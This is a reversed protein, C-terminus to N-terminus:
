RFVMFVVRFVKGSLGKLNLLYVGNSLFNTNIIIRENEQVFNKQFVDFNRHVADFIRIEQIKEPLNQIILYHSSPNPYIEVDNKANSSIGLQGQYILVDDIYWGDDTGIDGSEISFQLYLEDPNLNQIQAVDIEFFENVWDNFDLIKDNWIHPYSNINYKAITISNGKDDILKVFGTDTRHIIAAHWFSINISKSDTIKFPFLQLSITKRNPYNGFPSDTISSPTSYFFNTVYDWGNERLFKQQRTIDFTFFIPTESINSIPGVYKILENSFVSENGSNDIVKARFKYFGIEPVNYAIEVIKNTDTNSFQFEGLKITDDYIAISRFNVLPTTSDKRFAPTLIKLTAQYQENLEVSLITPPLPNRAGGPFGIAQREISTDEQCFTRISYIYSTHPILGTDLFKSTSYKLKAITQGNRQLIYFTQNTDIPKGFVKSKPEEWLLLLKNQEEAIIKARFNEPPKPTNVSIYATYVDSDYINRVANRMDVWSPYIKGNYFACGSYDGAFSNETFPNLRLDSAVESVKADIWTEGGNSSYSVYCEVLLNKPDNRSDLYMIAIDGNTPDFAIWHWFQDNTTDSHVIIPPSWTQGGDTSRSFYVNPISDASWCLYLYGSRPGSTYDCVLSPYAEARVSSKVTHRYGQNAIYKTKGFRNYKIIHKPNSFTNGGDTSKAFGIASETGDNWVVYVEGNPGVASLPFSQGFTTDESTNLKAPSIPLPVSWTDGRDSSYSIVIQTSSDRPIVRKWPVYLRGRYPSNPANDITIYYKDEFLSDLTQQGRHIIIPIHATWTNGNDSTRALFVGNEGYLLGTDSLVGFGGYVVYGIGDYSFAVSPDNSSRWGPYPRKLNKNKWNRGGNTSYYVWTSSTDRYDVASAILVNPNLPNIAISSENQMQFTGVEDVTTVFNYFIPYNSPESLPVLPLNHSEYFEPTPHANEMLRRFIEKANESIAPNILILSLLILNLLYIRKM